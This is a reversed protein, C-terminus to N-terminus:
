GARGRSAALRAENAARVARAMAPVPVRGRRWAVYAAGALSLAASTVGILIPRPVSGAAHPRAGPLDDAPERLGFSVPVVIGEAGAAPLRMRAATDALRAALREEFRFSPHVRVLDASLRRAALRVGPDLAPDAPVDDAGRAHAALIADLYRDTALAEVEPEGAMLNM